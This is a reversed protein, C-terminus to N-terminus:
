QVGKPPISSPKPREIPESPVPAYGTTDLSVRHSYGTPYTVCHHDRIVVLTGNDAREIVIPKDVPIGHKAWGAFLTMSYRQGYITITDDNFNGNYVYKVQHKTIWYALADVPYLICKVVVAYWPLVKGEEVKFLNHKIWMYITNKGLEMTIFRSPSLNIQVMPRHDDLWSRGAPLCSLLRSLHGLKKAQGSDASELDLGLNPTKM